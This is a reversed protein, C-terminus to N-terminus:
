LPPKSRKRERFLRPLGRRWWLVTGLDVPQAENLGKFPGVRLSRSHGSFNRKAVVGPAALGGELASYVMACGLVWSLLNRGLDRTPPVDPALRAMPAWGTVHPRVQRYFKVLLADPEPSTLYTVVVWVLTTIATTTIATKAFVVPQKGLFPEWWRLALSSILATAMASIESWANIRWWYWRLLYVGGTGAGVELVFEWGSRISALQASVWAAVIVLLVTALRSMTVYHADSGDKKLFRRYFDAVLYVRGM